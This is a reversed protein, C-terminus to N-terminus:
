KCCRDLTVIFVNKLLHKIIVNIYLNMCIIFIHLTTNLPMIWMFLIKIVFYFRFFVSLIQLGIFNEESIYYM